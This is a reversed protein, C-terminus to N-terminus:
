IYLRKLQYLLLLSFNQRGKTDRREKGKNSKYGM